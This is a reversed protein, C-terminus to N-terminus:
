LEAAYRRATGHGGIGQRARCSLEAVCRLALEASRMATRHRTKGHKAMSRAKRYKVLEYMGTVNSAGCLTSTCNVLKYM